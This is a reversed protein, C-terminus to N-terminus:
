ELWADPEWEGRDITELKCGLTGCRERQLFWGKGGVLEIVAEAIKKGAQETMCAKLGHAFIVVAEEDEVDVGAVLEETVKARESADRIRGTSDEATKQPFGGGVWEVIV